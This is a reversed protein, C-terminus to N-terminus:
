VSKQQRFKQHKQEWKRLWTKNEQKLKPHNHRIWFEDVTIVRECYRYHDQLKKLKEVALQLRTGNTRVGKMKFEQTPIRNVSMKLM